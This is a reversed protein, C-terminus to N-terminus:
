SSLQFFNLNLNYVSNKNKSNQEIYEETERRFRKIRSKVEPILRVDMGGMISTHSKDDGGDVDISSMAKNLIQKQFVRGCEIDMDENTIFTVDEFSDIWKGDEEKLAGMSFLNKIVERCIDEEIKLKESIWLIEPLFGDVTTLELIALYVWNRLLDYQDEQLVVKSRKGYMFEDRAEEVAHEDLKLGTKIKQFYNNSVNRKFNMFQSLAGAQVDLDRAFCRLSYMPNRSARKTFEDKLLEVRFTNEVEKTLM